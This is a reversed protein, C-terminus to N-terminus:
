REERGPGTDDDNPPEHDHDPPTDSAPPQSSPPRPATERHMAAKVSAVMVAKAREFEEDTLKGERHMQRLEALGFTTTPEDPRRMWRHMLFGVLAIVAAGLVILVLYLVIEQAHRGAQQALFVPLPLAPAVASPSANM